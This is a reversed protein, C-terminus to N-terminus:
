EGPVVAASDPAELPWLQMKRQQMIPFLTMRNSNPKTKTEPIKERQAESEFGQPAQGSVFYCCACCQVLM